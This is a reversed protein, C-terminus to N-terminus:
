THFYAQRDLVAGSTKKQKLPLYPHSHRMICQVFAKLADAKLCHRSSLIVLPRYLRNALRFSEVLSQKVALQVSPEPLISIGHDQIILGLAEQVSNRPETRKFKIKEDRLYQLVSVTMPANEKMTYFQDHMARIDAAAAAQDIDPKKARAQAARLKSVVLVM